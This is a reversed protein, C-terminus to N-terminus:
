SSAVTATSFCYEAGFCLTIFANFLAFAGATWYAYIVFFILDLERYISYM